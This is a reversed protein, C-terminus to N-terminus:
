STTQPHWLTFITITMELNRSNILLEVGLGKRKKNRSMGASSLERKIEGIWRKCLNSCVSTVMESKMVAMCGLVKIKREMKTKVFDCAWCGKGGVKEEENSRSSTLKDEGKWKIGTQSSMKDVLWRAYNKKKKKTPHKQIYIKPSKM